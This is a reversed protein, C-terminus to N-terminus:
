NDSGFVDDIEKETLDKYEKDLLSDSSSTLDSDSTTTSTSDSTSVVRKTNSDKSEVKVEGEGEEQVVYTGKLFQQKKSVAVYPLTHWGSTLLGEKEAELIQKHWQSKKNNAKHFKYYNWIVFDEVALLTGNAIPIIHGTKTLEALATEIDQRDLGIKYAMLDVQNPLIGWSDAQTICGYVLVIKANKTLIDTTDNLNTPICILNMSM